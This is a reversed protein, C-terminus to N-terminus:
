RTLKFAIWIGSIAGIASLFISSMSLFSAEWLNPILSGLYSGIIMGIWIIKKNSM